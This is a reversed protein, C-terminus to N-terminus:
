LHTMVIQCTEGWQYCLKLIERSDCEERVNVVMVKRHRFYLKQHIINYLISRVQSEREKEEEYKIKLGKFTQVYETSYFAM